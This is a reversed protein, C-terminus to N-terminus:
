CAGVPSYCDIWLVEGLIRFRHATRRTYLLNVRTLAVPAPHHYSLDRQGPPGFRPPTHEQLAIASSQIFRSDVVQQSVSVRCARTAAQILIATPRLSQRAGALEVACPYVHHGPAVVHIHRRILIVPRPTNCNAIPPVVRPYKDFVDFGGEARARRSHGQIASVIIAVVCRTLDAPSGSCLLVPVGAPENVPGSIARDVLEPPTEHPLVRVFCAQAPMIEGRKGPIDLVQESRLGPRSTHPEHSYIRTQRITRTVDAPYRPRLLDARRLGGAPRM